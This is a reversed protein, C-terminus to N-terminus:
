RGGFSRIQQGVIQILSGLAINIDTVHIGWSRDPFPALKRSKSTVPSIRLIDAGNAHQCEAAYRDPPVVWPTPATPPFGGYTLLLGAGIIGPYPDSRVLSNIRGRDGALDAPNTCVVERGDPGPGNFARSYRDTPKGFRTNDPPVEAFSSYAIVCGNQSRPTCVPVHKFNGGVLEGRKVMVNAGPIVASILRKRVKRNRDIEDTILQTLLSSGQSHGILVVGRGHNYHALYDKWAAEVDGLAVRLAPYRAPDPGLLGVLTAQRYMPAYVRCVQSFRSAQYQAIAIEAPDIQLNSSPTLQESVTPYVYFCDAKPKKAIGPNTVTSAGSFTQYTTELDSVCPDPAHGPLCLWKTAAGAPAAGFALLIGALLAVRIGM